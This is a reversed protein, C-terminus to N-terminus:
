TRTGSRAPRRRPAPRRGPPGPTPTRPKLSPSAPCRLPERRRRRRQREAAACSRVADLRLASRVREHRQRAQLAGGGLIAVVSGGTVLGRLGIAVGRTADGAASSPRRDLVLRGRAADARRRCCSASWCSTPSPRPRRRWPWTPACRPRRRSWCGCRRPGGTRACSSPADRSLDGARAHGDALRGDSSGAGDIEDQILVDRGDVLAVGRRARTVAPRYAASLDTVAFARYGDDNFAVIPATAQLEQNRGDVQITNHSETRLRFYTWRLPGFYDPLAFYDPGLDVAWREGLADIVVSGLDLHGPTATNVAAACPWGHARDPRALRRRAGRRRHGPLAEFTSPM